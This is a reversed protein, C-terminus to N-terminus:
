ESVLQKHTHKDFLTCSGWFQQSSDQNTCGRPWAKVCLERLGGQSDSFPFISPKKFVTFGNGMQLWHPDLLLTLWLYHRFAKKGGSRCVPSIRVLTEKTSFTFSQPASCRWVLATTKRILVFDLLSTLAVCSNQLNTSDMTKKEKCSPCTKVTPRTHLALSPGHAAGLPENPIGPEWVAGSTWRFNLMSANLQLFFM